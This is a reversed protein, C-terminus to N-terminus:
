HWDGFPYVFRDKPRTLSFRSSARAAGSTVRARVGGGGSRPLTATFVGFRNARALGLLHWKGGVRQEVRVAAARSSPTRGWVRVKGGSAYAVFPFRFAQLAPKPRDQQLTAGRLYLGSQFPQQPYPEDRLGWWLVVSVRSRWMQYLAEATWRGHLGLPVGESDPPKTDWSFETIWFQPTRRAAIRKYRIAADLVKRMEPLDGLSVDEARYAEHTPGGSTYPHHAWVDFKARAACVPKPKARQSLCLMARMFTLPGMGWRVKANKTWATFPATGGAVVLNDARVGHVADAFANVLGRYAIPAFPKGNVFQPNLYRGLNPENWVMWYHVRPLGQYRGSYRTAAAGAFNGLAAADVGEPAYAPGKNAWAPPDYITLLVRLGSETAWRIERDATRWDYGSFAPNRADAVTPPRQRTVGKWSIVLRAISGGAGRIREFVEPSEARESPFVGTVFPRGGPAAASPRAEARFAFAGAAAVAVIAVAFTAARMVSGTM